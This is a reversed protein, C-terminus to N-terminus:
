KKAYTAANFEVGVYPEDGIVKADHGPPIAYADGAKITTRQGDTTWVELEGAVCHGVHTGECHETGAIPKVSGAWTWGPEFRFRGLTFDGLNTIDIKANAPTRVEDPNDFSRTELKNVTITTM